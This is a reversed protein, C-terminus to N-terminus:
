WVYLIDYALNVNCYYKNSITLQRKKEQKFVVLLWCISIQTGLGVGEGKIRKGKRKKSVASWYIYKELKTKLCNKKTLTKVVKNHNLQVATQTM